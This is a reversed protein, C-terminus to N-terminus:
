PEDEIDMTTKGGRIHDIKHVRNSKNSPNLMHNSRNQPSVGTLNYSVNSDPRNKGAPLSYIEEHQGHATKSHIQIERRRPKSPVIPKANM